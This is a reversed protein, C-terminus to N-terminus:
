QAQMRTATMEYSGRVWSKGLDYSKEAKIKFTTPGIDFYTERNIFPGDADSGGQTHIVMQGDTFRAETPRLSSWDKGAYINQGVWHKKSADWARMEIGTVHPGHWEQMVVYGSVGWANRWRAKSKKPAGQRPFNTLDVAWEGIVFDFQALEAAGEPNRTGFAASRLSDAAKVAPEAGAAGAPAMLFVYLAVLSLRLKQVFSINMPLSLSLALPLWHDLAALLAWARVSDSGAMRESRAGHQLTARPDSRGLSPSGGSPHSARTSVVPRTRGQRDDGHPCAAGGYRGLRSFDTGEPSPRVHFRALAAPLLYKAKQAEGRGTFWAGLEVALLAEAL